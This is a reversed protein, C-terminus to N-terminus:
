CVRKPDDRDACPALLASSSLLATPGDKDEEYRSTLGYLDVLNPDATMFTTIAVDGSDKTAESIVGMDNPHFVRTRQVMSRSSRGGVGSFTVEEKEKVNHVPNSEEVLKVAPDQAILQWVAYPPLEIKANAVSGRSRQARISRVLESYVAGAVREYGCNRMYAMDTEAPAWDTLLLECARILLGIFDTPEKIQELITKSIPDVFLETMLDVERLYRLGIRNQELLNLYIDKRDFLHVAYNRISNEYTNFGSLLMAALRHDRPFILSEDEFRLAFEDEGLNLREGASVRRPRVKLIKMLQELGLSYALVIGLPIQKNLIKVEVMEMPQKGSVGFLSEFRGLETVTDGSVRYLTDTADVTMLDKGVNGIVVMSNKETARVREEGYKKYRGRYDLFFDMDHLRFSRFRQALTSYIRPVVDYSNYVNALMINTVDKNDPDMGRAAIQNTLWGSYNHVQKESRTVFTKSYYTTLAVKSSSLKRIPLDRRQKRLRYRVGNSRFTGDPNVKPVRFHVTTQRGKVPTLQVSHNEYHGLADEVEEVNYGTVAVGAGQMALVSRMIDKPLFQEIYRRDFDLLSSQLMSKDLVTKQDPIAIDKRIRLDEYRVESAEALNQGSGYPDPLREYATSLATFRRYEAGSLLGKDALADVKEMIGSALTREAPQYEVEEAIASVLPKEKTQIEAPATDDTETQESENFLRDLAELDKTIAEDILQINEATEESANDEPLDDVDLGPELKLTKSRGTEPNEVKIRVPDPKAEAVTEPETEPVDSAPAPETPADNQVVEDQTAQEAMQAATRVEFLYMLLRLFRRQMQQPNIMARPDGSGQRWANVTGLNMVFWRGSESFILNVRDLAEAEIHNLLSNERSEGFWKWLELIQLAAPENFLNLMTRNLNREARLLQSITPLRTPLSLQIFHQRDNLKARENITQWVTSEINYWKNYGAFFTQTYRYLQPLLSYNVVALQTENRTAAEYSTMKRTQRNKRHYERIMGTPPIRTPRPPGKDSLLQQVHDVMIIRREDALIPDDQPIGYQAEDSAAYHLVSNRPLRLTTIPRLPPAVLQVARRVGYQRYYIPYLMMGETSVSLPNFYQETAMRSADIVCPTDDQPLM